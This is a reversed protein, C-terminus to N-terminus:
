EMRRSGFFFGQPREFASAGPTLHAQTERAFAGFVSTDRTPEAAVRFIADSSGDDVIVIEDVSPGAHLRLWPVPLAAKNHPPVVVSFVANTM